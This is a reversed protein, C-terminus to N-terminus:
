CARFRGGVDSTESSYRLKCGTPVSYADFYAEEMPIWSSKFMSAMEEGNRELIRGMQEEPSIDCFVKIDYIDGHKPHCSYSGEVIRWESPVVDRNGGMQMTSCDFTRYSFAEGNRLQPVAEALFRESHVNGGPEALRAETRLEGPLFFDDMHVLGAGTIAQLKLALTSKGSAARGDIAIVGPREVLSSMCELLPILQVLDVSVIRYAPKEASRYTDSHHVAKPTHPGYEDLFDDWEEKNFPLESKKVLDGIDGLYQHFKAEPDSNKKDGATICFMKFLWESSIASKKWMDLNVRCYDPSIQEYLEGDRAAVSATEDYFYRRASEIDLLLHEAGFAAQYCLKVADRPQMTPHMLVQDAFYNVFKM